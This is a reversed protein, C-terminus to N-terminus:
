ARAAGLTSRPPPVYGSPVRGSPLAGDRSASREVADQLGARRWAGEFSNPLVGDVFGERALAAAAVRSAPDDVAPDPVLEIEM